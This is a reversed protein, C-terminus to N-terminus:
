DGTGGHRHGPGHRLRRAVGASRRWPARCRAAADRQGMAALRGRMGQGGCGQGGPGDRRGVDAAHVERCWGLSTPARRVALLALLFFLFVLATAALSLGLGALLRPPTYSWTVVGLGPPVDVAQVVGDPQVPLTTAPGHRPQWRASWGPIAAVSRVVRAGQRSFVTAATPEDPAGSAGRIWADASSQGDLSEIALPGQAFRNAFVAFSGDFGAFTWHSPELANQLQGDAVFVSEGTTTIAPAGLPSPAAHAQGTVATSAVPRPLTIALTSPTIARARSWLTSGDPTTLGIRTGAAADQRADADPVAVKSVELTTGLYWTARQDATIDRHGTGAPGADRGGAGAQTILYASLTLLVSTDLQDLTGDEIAQPALTADGEGTAGHTGTASAYRGDVISTYGQISPMADAGFGNLDPQGLAPLEGPDLLDPDYIAFRGPYGLAAIPRLAASQAAATRVAATGAPATGAPATASGSSAGYSGSSDSSGFGGPAVEVVTLVSFALLDVVVFGVLLRSRPRPGLRRGFIVLAVAGAGLVAYPVLFPQLRGIASISTSADVGLWQLLGAGGTLGAAVLAIVALPPVVGLATEWAVRSRAALGAAFPQDVWYALLVALALDLVLVNRSQLRQDGFLPLHYLLGGLPTNSGLALVVGVVAAIHWVLWDPPRQRLRLRGLLAFAAVLPLIGVYSTVETLNYSTLFSPQGLSGSGGILDPVLTLTLWRIPLSGSSFLAMSSADRQSTSIAALGPLWQVAGLCVGLVLGAAASVAALGARRGLRAVRWAAYIGVIVFADDVARPEGALIVLGTATALVAIWGLRVAAPRDQSLRLISLLQLPVWSLGAILGFHTVQASMAGAFAFSFAGLFSALTALRLARLFAFMGLGATAWTAILNVTWASTGPLIAFLWTFPYAVAANWGALLPAGSWIYPDYLPLQGSRIERGALVRLPFNQGLDDGPLVAHGLLAPVGFIIAPLAILLVVGVVDGRRSRFAPAGRADTAMEGSTRLLETRM